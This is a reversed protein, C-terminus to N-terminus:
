DWGVLEALALLGTVGSADARRCMNRVHTKITHLSVFLTDATEALSQTRLHSLVAKEQRSFMEPRRELLQGNEWIVTETYGPVVKKLFFRRRARFPTHDAMVAVLWDPSRFTKLPPVVVRVDLRSTGGTKLNLVDLDYSVHNLSSAYHPPLLTKAYDVIEPFINQVMHALSEEVTVRVLYEVGVREYEATDWGLLDHLRPSAYAVQGTQQNYVLLGHSSLKEFRRAEAILAGVDTQDTAPEWLQLMQSVIQGANQLIGTDPLNM